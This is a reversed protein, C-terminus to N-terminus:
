REVYLHTMPDVRGVLGPAVYSLACLLWARGWTQPVLFLYLTEYPLTTHPICALAVLMRAAPEKWRVLALLVLVGGPRTVVAVLHQVSRTTGYWEWPWRPRVIFAVLVFATVGMATRWSPFGVFLAAGIT